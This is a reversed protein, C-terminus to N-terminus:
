CEAWNGEEKMKMETVEYKMFLWISKHTDPGVNLSIFIGVYHILVENLQFDRDSYLYNSWVSLRIRFPLFSSNFM